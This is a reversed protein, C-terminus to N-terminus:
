PDMLPSVVVCPVGLPKLILGSCVFCYFLGAINHSIVLWSYCFSSNVVICSSLLKVRTLSSLTFCIYIIIIIIIFLYYIIIFLCAIIIFLWFPNLHRIFLVLLCDFPSLHRIIHSICSILQLCIFMYIRQNM